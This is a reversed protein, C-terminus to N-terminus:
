TRMSDIEIFAVPLFIAVPLWAWIEPRIQNFIVETALMKCIFTVVFCSATILFSKLIATKMAKPDRCVLVPLAILLMVITMIPDTIRSQKQAILSARDKTKAGKELTSLQALSLLELYSEQRKLPVLDPTLDSTYFEKPEPEFQLESNQLNSSIEDYRGNTLKWGKNEYDYVALDAKIWGNTIWKNASIQERIIIAPSSMTEAEEDYEQTCILSGKSDKMFWVSYKQGGSISDHTRVLKSAQKPILLEQDLVLLGTLLTSLIVIPAIVRKLSVGSAMIAILENNKTMRGLSFVAAIVTIFGACDRFYLASQASYYTFIRSLVQIPGDDVVGEPPEAFEDLNVFLDVVIILGMMVM